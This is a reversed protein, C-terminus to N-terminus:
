NRVNADEYLIYRFMEVEPESLHAAELFKSNDRIRRLHGEKNGQTENFNDKLGKYFKYRLGTPIGYKMFNRWAFNDDGTEAALFQEISKEKEVVIASDHLSGIHGFQSTNLEKFITKLTAITPVQFYVMDLLALKDSNIKKKKKSGDNEPLEGFYDLITDSNFVWIPPPTFDVEKNTAQAQQKAKKHMRLVEAVNDFAVDVMSQLSIPWKQTMKEFKERGKNDIINNDTKYNNQANKMILKLKNSNKSKLLMSKMYSKLWQKTIKGEPIHEKAPIGELMKEKMMKQLIWFEKM